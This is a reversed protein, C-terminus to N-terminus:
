GIKVALLYSQTYAAEGGEITDGNVSSTASIKYTTEVSPEVLADVHLVTEGAQGTGTVKHNANRFINTGDWLKASWNRVASTSGLLQVAGTLLYVGSTLTVSPGDYYTGATTMTVSKTVGGKSTLTAGGDLRVWASSQRVYLGTGSRVYLSGDPCVTPLSGGTPPAATGSGIYVGGLRMFEGTTGTGTTKSGVIISDTGEDTYRTTLNSYRNFGLADQQRYKGIIIGTEKGTHGTFSNALVAVGTYHPAGSSGAESLLVGTPCGEFNNGIIQIAGDTGTGAVGQRIGIGGEEADIGQLKAGRITISAAGTQLDVLVHNDVNSEFYCSSDATLGVSGKTVLDYKHRHIHVGSLKGYSADSSTGDILLGTSTASGGRGVGRFTVREFVYHNFWKLSMGDASASRSEIRLDCLKPGAHNLSSAEAKIIKTSASETFICSGGGSASPNLQSHSGGQLTLGSITSIDLCFGAGQDSVKYNGHSFYVTGYNGAATIAAQIAVTDDTSGDGKAGYATVNYIGFFKSMLKGIFTIGTLFKVARSVKGTSVPVSEEEEPNASSSLVSGEASKRATEEATLETKSAKTGEATEAREKEADVLAEAEVKTFGSGGGSQSIVIWQGGVESESGSSTDSICLVIDDVEVPTGASGGIKGAASVYYVHGSNGDPYNPSGSCNLQGKNILVGSPPDNSNERLWKSLSISAM